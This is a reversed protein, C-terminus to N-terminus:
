WTKYGQKLLRGYVTRALEVSKLEEKRCLGRVYERVTVGLAPDAHVTFVFRVPDGFKELVFVQTKRVTQVKVM